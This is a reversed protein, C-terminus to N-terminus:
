EKMDVQAKVGGKLGEKAGKAASSAVKGAQNAGWKVGRGVVNSQLLKKDAMQATSKIKKGGAYMANDASMRLSQMGKGLATKKDNYLRGSDSMSQTQGGTASSAVNQAALAQKGEDSQNFQRQGRAQSSSAQRNARGERYSSIMSRGAGKAGAKLVSTAAGGVASGVAKAPKMVTSAAMAGLSAGIGHGFSAGSFHNALDSSQQILKFGFICVALIKLFSTGGSKLAEGIEKVLNANYAAEVDPGLASKMMQMNLALILSVAVFTFISQLLMNWGKGPFEKATAPFAWATILLPLMAGVVGLRVAADILYFPFVLLYVLCAVYIIKGDLWLAFNPVTSEEWGVCSVTEGIAMGEALEVQVGQIMCIMAKGMESGFAGSASLGSTDATCVFDSSTMSDSIATAFNFGSTAVPTVLYGYANMSSSLFALAFMCRVMQGGVSKLMEMPDIPTLSSVQKLMTIALWMGLGVAILAKCGSQVADFVKISMTSVANFVTKFLDCLYCDKAFKDGLTTPNECKEIGAFSIEPMLVVLAFVAMFCIALKYDAAYQKIKIFSANIM